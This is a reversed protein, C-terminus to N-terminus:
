FPLDAERQKIWDAHAKRQEGFLPQATGVIVAPQARAWRAREAAKFAARDEHAQLTDAADQEIRNM